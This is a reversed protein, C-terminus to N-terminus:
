RLAELIEVLGELEEPYVSLSKRVTWAHRDSYRIERAITAFRESNEGERLAVSVRSREREPIVTWEDITVANSRPSTREKRHPRVSDTRPTTSM